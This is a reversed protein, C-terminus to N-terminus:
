HVIVPLVMYYCTTADVRYQICVVLIYQQVLASTQEPGGGKGWYGADPMRCGTGTGSYM